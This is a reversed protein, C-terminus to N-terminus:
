RKTFCQANDTHSNRNIMLFVELSSVVKVKTLIQVKALIGYSQLLLLLSALIAM